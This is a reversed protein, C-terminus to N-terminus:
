VKDRERRIEFLFQEISVDMSGIDANFEEDKAKAINSVYSGGFGLTWARRILLNNNVKQVRLAGVSQDSFDFPLIAVGNNELRNIEFEWDTLLNKLVVKVKNDSEEEPLIVSDLALYYTDSYQSIKLEPVCVYLDEHFPSTKNPVFSIEMKLHPLGLLFVQVVLLLTM